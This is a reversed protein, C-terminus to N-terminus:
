EDVLSAVMVIGSYEVMENGKEQVLYAVLEDVKVDDKMDVWEYASHSEKQWVMQEAMQEVM